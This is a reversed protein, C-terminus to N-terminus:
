PKRILLPALVAIFLPETAIMVGTTGSPVFLQGVTILSLPVVVEVVALVLLARWCKALVRWRQRHLLFPAM